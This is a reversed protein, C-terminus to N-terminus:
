HLTKHYHMSQNFLNSHCFNRSYMLFLDREFHCVKKGNLLGARKKNRLRNVLGLLQLPSAPPHSSRLSTDKESLRRLQKPVCAGFSAASPDGQLLDLSAVTWSHLAKDGIM